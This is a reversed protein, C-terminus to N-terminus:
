RPSSRGPLTQTIRWFSGNWCTAATAGTTSARISPAAPKTSEWSRELRRLPRPFRFGTATSFRASPKPASKKEGLAAQVRAWITVKRQRAAPLGPGSCVSHGKRSTFSPAQYRSATSQARSFSTVLPAEATLKEGFKIQVLAWATVKRYRMQPLYVFRLCPLLEISGKEYSTSPPCFAALGPATQSRPTKPLSPVGQLYERHLPQAEAHHVFGSGPM